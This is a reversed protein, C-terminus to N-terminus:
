HWSMYVGHWVLYLTHWTLEQEPTSAPGGGGRTGFQLPYPSMGFAM